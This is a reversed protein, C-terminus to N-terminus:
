KCYNIFIDLKEKHTKAKTLRKEISSISITKNLAKKMTNLLCIKQANDDLTYILKEFEKVILRQSWGNKKYKEMVEEIHYTIENSEPSQSTQKVAYNETTIQNNGSTYPVSQIPQGQEDLFEIITARAAVHQVRKPYGGFLFRFFNTSERRIEEIVVNILVQSGTLQANKLLKGYASNAVDTRSLNTNNVEVVAEINRVVRFNAKDLVVTSQAGFNNRANPLYTGVSCSTTLFIVFSLILGKKMIIFFLISNVIYNPM